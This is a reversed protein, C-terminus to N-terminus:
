AQSLSSGGHPPEASHVSRRWRPPALFLSLVVMLLFTVYIPVFVAPGCGPFLFKRLLFLPYPIQPIWEGSRLIDTPQSDADRLSIEWTTLPCTIGMLAEFVVIGIALLHLYRFWPNRVWQWRLCTGLLILVQGILVFGVYCLHSILVLDAQTSLSM